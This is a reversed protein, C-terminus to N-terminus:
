FRKLNYVNVMQWKRQLCHQDSLHTEKGLATFIEKRFFTQESLLLNLSTHTRSERGKSLCKAERQHKRKWLDARLLSNWVHFAFLEECYTIAANSTIDVAHKSFCYITSATHIIFFFPWIIIKLFVLFCMWHAEVAKLLFTCWHM